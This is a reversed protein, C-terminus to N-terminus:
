EESEIIKLVDCVYVLECGNENDTYEYKCLEKIKELKRTAKELKEKTEKLIVEQLYDIHHVCEECKRTKEKKHLCTEEYLCIPRVCEKDM